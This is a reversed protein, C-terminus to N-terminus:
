SFYFKAPKANHCRTYIIWLLASFVTYESHLERTNSALGYKRVSTCLHWSRATIEKDCRCELACFGLLRDALVVCDPLWRCVTSYACVIKLVIMCSCNKARFYFTPIKTTSLYMTGYNILWVRLM